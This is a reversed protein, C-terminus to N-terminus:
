LSLVIGDIEVTLEDVDMMTGFSSFLVVILTGEM